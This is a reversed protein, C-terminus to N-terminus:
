RSQLVERIAPRCVRGGSDGPREAMMASMDALVIRVDSEKKWMVSAKKKRVLGAVIASWASTKTRPSAMPMTLREASQNESTQV